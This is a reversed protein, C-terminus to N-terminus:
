RIASCAVFHPGWDGFYPQCGMGVARSNGGDKVLYGGSPHSCLPQVFHLLRLSLQVSSGRQTM